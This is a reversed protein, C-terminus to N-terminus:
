YPVSTARVSASRQHCTFEYGLVARGRGVAPGQRSPTRPWRLVGWRAWTSDFSPERVSRPSHDRLTVENNSQSSDPERSVACAEPGRWGSSCGTTATITSTMRVICREPVRQYEVSDVIPIDLRDCGGEARDLHHRSAARGVRGTRVPRKEPRTWSRYWRLSFSRGSAACPKTIRSVTRRKMQPDASHGRRVKASGNERGPAGCARNVVRRLWARSCTPSASAPRAPARSATWSPKPAPRIVKNRLTM